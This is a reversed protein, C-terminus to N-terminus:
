ERERGRPTVVSVRGPEAALSVEGGAEALTVRGGAGAGVRAQISEVAGRAATKVADDGFLGKSLPLITLVHDPTGIRALGHLAAVRVASDQLELLAMLPEPDGLKVLTRALGDPDHPAYARLAEVSAAEFRATEGRIRAALLAVRADDDDLAGQAAAAAAPGGHDDALARLCALRVLPEQDSRVNRALKAALGQQGPDGLRQALGAVTRLMAQVLDIGNEHTELEVVVSEDNVVVKHDAIARQLARRTDQDLLAQLLAVEGRVLVARDFGEDGTAHDAGTFVKLIGFGEGEFRLGPAVGVAVIKTYPKQKKGESRTLYEIRVATRDHVGQLVPASLMGGPFYTMGLAEATSSYLWKNQSRQAMKVAIAFLSFVFLFTFPGM